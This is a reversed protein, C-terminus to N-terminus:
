AQDTLNFIVARYLRMTQDGIITLNDALIAFLYLRSVEFILPLATIVGTTIVWWGIMRSNAYTQLYFFLLM